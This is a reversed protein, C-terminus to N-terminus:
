LARVEDVEAFGVKDVVCVRWDLRSRLTVDLAFAGAAPDIVYALAWVFFRQVLGLAADSYEVVDLVDLGLQVAILAETQGELHFARLHYNPAARVSLRERLLREAAASSIGEPLLRFGVREGYAARASADSFRVTVQERQIYAEATIVLGAQLTLGRVHKNTGVLLWHGGRNFLSYLVKSDEVLGTRADVFSIGSAFIPSRVLMLSGDEAAYAFELEFAGVPVQRDNALTFVIANSLHERPRLEGEVVTVLDDGYLLEVGRVDDSSLSWDIGTSKYIDLYNYFVLEQNAREFFYGGESLTADRIVDLLPARGPYVGSWPLIEQGTSFSSLPIGGGVYCRDVRALAPDDVYCLTYGTIWDRRFWPLDVSLLAARIVADATTDFQTTVAARLDGFGLRSVCYLTCKFSGPELTRHDVLGEFLITENVGLIASVRLWRRVPVFTEASGPSFYGDRNDCVLVCRAPLCRQDYLDGLGRTLEIHVIRSSINLDFLNDDGVSLYVRWTLAM